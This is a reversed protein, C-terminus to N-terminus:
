RSSVRTCNEKRENGISQNHAPRPTKGHAQVKSLADGSAGGFLGGALTKEM